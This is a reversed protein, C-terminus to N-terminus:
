QSCLVSRSVSGRQRLIRSGRTIKCLSIGLRTAITRQPVGDALMRMLRWRLALDKREAPTLLEDFLRRATSVDRIGAFVAAVDDGPLQPDNHMNRHM